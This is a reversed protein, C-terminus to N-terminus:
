RIFKERNDETRENNSKNRLYQIEQIPKCNELFKERVKVNKDNRLSKNLNTKWFSRNLKETKNHYKGLSISTYNVFVIQIYELHVVHHESQM